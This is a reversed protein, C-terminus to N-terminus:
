HMANAASPLAGYKPQRTRKKLLRIGLVYEIESLTNITFNRTGSLWESIESTPRGMKRAFEAQTMGRAAIYDAISAAVSLRNETKRLSVEDISSLMSELVESKRRKRM